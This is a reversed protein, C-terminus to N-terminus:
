PTGAEAKIHSSTAHSSEEQTAGAIVGQVVSLCWTYDSSDLEVEGSCHLLLKSMASLAIRMELRSLHPQGSRTSPTRVPITAV